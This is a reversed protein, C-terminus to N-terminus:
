GLGECWAVFHKIIWVWRLSAPESTVVTCRGGWWVKFFPGYEAAWDLFARHQGKAILTPMNGVQAAHM